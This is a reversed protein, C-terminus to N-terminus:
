NSQWASTAIKKLFKGFRNLSVTIAASHINRYETGPNRRRFGVPWSDGGQWRRGRDVLERDQLLFYM